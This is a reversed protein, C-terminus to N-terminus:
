SGDLGASVEYWQVVRLRTILSSGRGRCPPNNCTGTEASYEIDDRIQAGPHPGGQSDDETYGGVQVEIKGGLQHGQHSVHQQYKDNGLQGIIGNKLRDNKPGAHIRMGNLNKDHNHHCSAQCSNDTHYQGNRGIGHDANEGFFKKIVKPHDLLQRFLYSWLFLLVLFM